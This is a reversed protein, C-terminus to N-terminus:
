RKRPFPFGQPSTSIKVSGITRVVTDHIKKIERVESKAENKEEYMAKLRKTLSFSIIILTASFIFMVTHTISSATAKDFEGWQAQIGHYLGVAFAISVLYMFLGVIYRTARLCNKALFDDIQEKVDRMGDNHDADSLDLNALNEKVAQYESRHNNDIYQGFVSFASAIILLSNLNEM